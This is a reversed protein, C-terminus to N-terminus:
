RSSKTQFNLKNSSKKGGAGGTGGMPGNTSTYRYHQKGQMALNKEAHQSALSQKNGGPSQAFEGGITHVGGTYIGTLGLFLSYIFPSSHTSLTHPSSYTSFSPNLPHISLTSLSSPTSTSHSSLTLRTSFLPHNFIYVVVYM